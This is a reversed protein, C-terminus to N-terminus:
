KKTAQSLRRSGIALVLFSTSALGYESITSMPNSKYVGFGTDPTKIALLDSQPPTSITSNSSIVPTVQALSLDDATWISEGRGNNGAAALYQGSASSAISAWPDSSTASNISLLSDDTWSQGGDSSTWIDGGTVVAALYQGSASSAISAWYQGSTASNGPLTSDDTWSQGGDSSTWIDGSRATGALNM